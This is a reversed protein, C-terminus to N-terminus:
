SSFLWLLLSIHGKESFYLACITCRRLRCLRTSFFNYHPNQTTEGRWVRRVVGGKKIKLYKGTLLHFSDAILALSNTWIGGVLQIIFFLFCISIAYKLKKRSAQNSDENAAGLENLNIRSHSASGAGGGGISYPSPLIGSHPQGSVLTGLSDPGPSILASSKISSMDITEM